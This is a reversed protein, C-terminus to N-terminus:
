RNCIEGKSYSSKPCLIYAGIWILLMMLLFNSNFIIAFFGDYGARPASLLTYAMYLKITKGVWGNQNLQSIKKLVFGYLFCGLVVGFYSFDAYLVALFSSGLGQGSLFQEKMALYSIYHAFSHSETAFEISHAPPIYGSRNLFTGYKLYNLTEGFSFFRFSESIEEKYVYGFKIVKSSAGINVFFEIVTDFFSVFSITSGARIFEYVQLFVFLFPLMLILVIITRKKIWVEGYPCFKNRYLFYSFLFVSTYIFTSRAGTFISLASYLFYTGCLIYTEKKKPFTALFMILFLLSFEGLSVFIGPLTSNYSIYSEVYGYNRVFRIKDILSLLLFSYAIYYATKSLFRTASLVIHENKSNKVVKGYVEINLHTKTREKRKGTLFYGLGISIAGILIVLWAHNTASKEFQIWYQKGFLQGVLDGSVLFIFFAALFFLFFVHKRIDKLCYYTLLTFVFVILMLLVDVGRVALIPFIIICFLVLWVNSAIKTSNHNM